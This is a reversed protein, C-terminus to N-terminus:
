QGRFSALIVAGATQSQVHLERGTGGPLVIAHIQEAFLWAGVTATTAQGVAFAANTDALLELYEANDPISVTYDTDASTCTITARETFGADPEFRVNAANGSVIDDLLEVAAQIAALTTNATDQNTETAADTALVTSQVDVRAVDVSVIAALLDLAARMAALDGPATDPLNGEIQASQRMIHPDGDTGDGLAALYRRARDADLAILNAM